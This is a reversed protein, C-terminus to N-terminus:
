GGRGSTPYSSRRSSVKKTQVPACGNNSCIVTTRQVLDANAGTVDRGAPAVFPMATARSGLLGGSLILTAVVATFLTKPM